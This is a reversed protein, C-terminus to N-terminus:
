LKCPLNNEDMQEGRDAWEERVRGFIRWYIGRRMVECRMAAGAFFMGSFNRMKEASDLELYTNEAPSDMRDLKM